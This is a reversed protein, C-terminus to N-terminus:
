EELCESIFLCDPDILLVSKNFDTESCVALARLGRLSTREALLIPLPHIVAVPMSVLDIPGGVVLRKDGEAMKICLVQRTTSLPPPSLGLLTEVVLDAPEPQCSDASRVRSAEFGFRRGGASFLVVDITEAIGKVSM